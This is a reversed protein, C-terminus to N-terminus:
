LNLVRKGRSLSRILVRNERQDLFLGSHLGEGLHIEFLCDKEPVIKEERESNFPTPLSSAPFNEVWYFCTSESRPLATALSSLSTLIKNKSDHLSPDKFVALFGGAYFDVFLGPLGDGAGHVLRFAQLGQSRVYKERKKWADKIKGSLSSQLSNVD